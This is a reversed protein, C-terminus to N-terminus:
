KNDGTALKFFLYGTLMTLYFQSAILYILINNPGIKISAMLLLSGTLFSALSLALYIIMNFMNTFYLELANAFKIRKQEKEKEIQEELRKWYNTIYTM